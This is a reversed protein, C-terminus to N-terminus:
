SAAWPASSSSWTRSLSEGSPRYLVHDEDLGCPQVARCELAPDGRGGIMGPGEGRFLGLMWSAAGVPLGALDGCCAAALDILALLLHGLVSGAILV